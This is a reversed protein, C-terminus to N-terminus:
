TDEGNDPDTNRAVADLDENTTGVGFHGHIVNGTLRQKAARAWEDLAEDVYPDPNAIRAGDEVYRIPAASLDREDVFQHADRALEDINIGIADCIAALQDVTIPRVGRIIKSFQSQSVDCLIALDAQNLDFRAIYGRIRATIERSFATPAYNTM